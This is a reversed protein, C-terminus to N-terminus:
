AVRVMMFEPSFASTAVVDLNGGSNQYVLAEVYDTKNMEWQTTLAMRAPVSGSTVLVRTSGITTAANLQISLTRHGTAHAAWVVNATIVYIGDSPATLRSNNTANDHMVGYDYRESNFALTTVTDHAITQNRNHYARVAYVAPQEYMELNVIRDTLSELRRVIDEVLSM